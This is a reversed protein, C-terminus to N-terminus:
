PSAKRHSLEDSGAAQDGQQWQHERRDGDPGAASCRSLRALGGGLGRDWGAGRDEVLNERGDVALLDGAPFEVLHQVRETDRRAGIVLLPDIVDADFTDHVALEDLLIELLLRAQGDGLLVDIGLEGVELLLELGIALVDVHRQGRVPDRDRFDALLHLVGEAPPLVEVGDGGIGVELLEHGVVLVDEVLGQDLGAVDDDEDIGIGRGGVLLLGLLLEQRDLLLDLGDLDGEGVGGVLIGLILSVLAARSTSVQAVEETSPGEVLLEGRGREGQGLSLDGVRDLGRVAVVQDHDGVALFPSRGIELLDLDHDLVVVGRVELFPNDGGLLLGGLDLHLRHGGVQEGLGWGTRRGSGRALRGGLGGGRRAGGVGM